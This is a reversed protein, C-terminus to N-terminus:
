RYLIKFLRRYLGSLLRRSGPLRLLWHKRRSKGSSFAASADVEL